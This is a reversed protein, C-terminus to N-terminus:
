QKKISSWTAALKGSFDVATAAKELGQSMINQIDKKTLAVKFIAVEDLLGSYWEPKANTAMVVPDAVETIKGTLNGNAESSGDLYYDVTKGDYVLAIHHWEDPPVLLELLFREQAETTRMIAYLRTGADERGFRIDFGADTYGNNIVARYDGGIHQLWLVFSVTDGFDYEEMGCDVFDDAGDFSLAKGFKKGDVSEAGDIKGDHGRGSFDKATGGKADDFLWM